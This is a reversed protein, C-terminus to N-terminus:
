LRCELPITQDRSQVPSKVADKQFLKSNWIHAFQLFTVMFQSTHRTAVNLVHLGRCIRSRLNQLVRDAM